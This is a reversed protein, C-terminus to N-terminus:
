IQRGTSYSTSLNDSDLPVPDITSSGDLRLLAFDNHTTAANYNPHVVISQVDFFEVYQGGNSNSKFPRSFAGIRVAGNNRLENDVCHAATLVWEPSILSGGCGQDRESNGQMFLLKTFWPYTGVEAFTGGIIRNDGENENFIKMPRSPTSETPIKSTRTKTSGIQNDNKLSTSGAFPDFQLMGEDVEKDGGGINTIRDTASRSTNWKLPDNENATVIVILLNLFHIAIVSKNM